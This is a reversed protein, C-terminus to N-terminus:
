GMVCFIAIWEADKVGINRGPCEQHAYTVVLVFSGHKHVPRRYAGTSEMAVHTVGEATPWDRLAELDRTMTGFARIERRVKRRAETIIVCVVVSVQHVDLGCCRAIMTEM